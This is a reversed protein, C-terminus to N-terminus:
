QEEGGGGATVLAIVIPTRDSRLLRLLDEYGVPPPAGVIGLAAEIQQPLTERQRNYEAPALARVRNMMQLNVRSVADLTAPDPAEQAIINGAVRRAEARAVMRFEDGMLDRIADLEMAVYEGVSTFGGMRAARAAQEQAQEATQVLASQQESLAGIFTRAAQAELEELTAQADQLEAIANDAARQRRADVRRGTELAWLVAEFDERHEEWIRARLAVLRDREARVQTNLASVVQLQEPTLALTRITGLLRTDEYLEAAGLASTDAGAGATQAYAAGVPLLALVTPLWWRHM